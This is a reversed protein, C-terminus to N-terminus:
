AAKRTQDGATEAVLRDIVYMADKLSGYSVHFDTDPIVVEYGIIVAGDPQDELQLVVVFEGARYIENGRRSAM